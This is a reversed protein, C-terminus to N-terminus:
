KTIAIFLSAIFLGLSLGALVDVPYHVGLHVRSFAIACMIAGSLVFFLYFPIYFYLLHALLLYFTGSVMSHGSPFSYSKEYVLRIGNPRERKFIIKLIHNIISSAITIVVIKYFLHNKSFYGIATLLIGLPVFFYHSGFFSVLIMAKDAKKFRKSNILLYFDLDKEKKKIMYALTILFFSFILSIPM